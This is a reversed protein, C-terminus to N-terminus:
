NNYDGLWTASADLLGRLGKKTTLENRSIAFFLIDNIMDVYLSSERSIIIGDQKYLGKLIDITDIKKHRPFNIWIVVSNEEAFEKDRDFDKSIYGKRLALNYLERDTATKRITPRYDQPFSAIAPITILLIAKKTM